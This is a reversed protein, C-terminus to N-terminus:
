LKAFSLSITKKSSRDSLIDVPVVLRPLASCHISSAPSSFFFCSLTPTTDEPSSAITSFFRSLKGSVSPLKPPSGLEPNVRSSCPKCNDPLRNPPCPLRLITSIDSPSSFTPSIRFAAIDSFSRPIVTSTSGTALASNFSAAISDKLTGSFSYRASDNEKSTDILLM